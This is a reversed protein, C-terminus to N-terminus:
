RRGEDEPLRALIRELKGDLSEVAVSNKYAMVILKVSVLFVGVELFLDHSLGKTFLAAVFLGLTIFAIVFSGADMHKVM